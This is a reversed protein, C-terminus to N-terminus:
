APAGVLEGEAQPHADPEVDDTDEPTDPVEEALELLLHYVRALRRSAERDGPWQRQRSPRDTSM